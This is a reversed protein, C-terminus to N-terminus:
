YENHWFAAGLWEEDLEEEDSDFNSDAGQLYLTNNGELQSVRIKLQEVEWRLRRNEEELRYFAKRLDLGNVGDM